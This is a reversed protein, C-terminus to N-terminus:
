DKLVKKVIKEVEDWDDTPVRTMEIDGFYKQIASLINFSNKDHVFSIAVGKRGFRGTRGIRHIYTAPDAQGNALTPLDYNVVMSVTPIDIGRALVNTTILVKSRGERFDDILRDREQTQLDGHLISVEHGESKLKGYLVNATKKTAVFIISSGITMLGYLETLVDFKDAENKCDMYLQKIADVNVENTQLELTNANPVIKKAYQRVADAFTASFLVLQTDKPLFRKVRICQDGLGQQDLMNDAEDLVFIKIKQLQMLKRRMLDLVTGPTGVIVQANIQKNKEFSDPVILQSTIKTFKGMEQVVELTQRALERSPALCIAQPSADEPNVRTLMTLSFAATKGTGSQSQAIMNRPPNHLLLPLAREQIKSPKQFKMAYIGKLLEPALGLEDFSKASYLPSNPDAQIDALKVKVEYESSILNSDEQKTKKEEVKPVLKEAPKISDATKEPQSKVTEKTSVESTDEKENDIKLSALLDAPDRKTDSM